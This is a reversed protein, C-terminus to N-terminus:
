GCASNCDGYCGDCDAPEDNECNDCELSEVKLVKLNNRSPEMIKSQIGSTKLDEIFKNIEM